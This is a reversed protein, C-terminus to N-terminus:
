NRGANIKIGSAGHHGEYIHIVSIRIEIYGCKDESLFLRNEKTEVPINGVSIRVLPAPRHEITPSPRVTLFM